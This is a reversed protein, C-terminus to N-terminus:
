ADTRRQVPHVLEDSCSLCCDFACNALERFRRSSSSCARTRPMASRSLPQSRQVTSQASRREIPRSTTAARSDSIIAQGHRADYFILPGGARIPGNRHCVHLAVAKLIM